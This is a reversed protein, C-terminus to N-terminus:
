VSAQKWQEKRRYMEADARKFVSDVSSDRGPLYEAMGASVVVRNEWSNEEIRQDFVRLLEERNEYDSDELIAAFEDGGIRYVPSHQFVRCILRCASIIMEDGVDHGLTDNILKLDNLDFVVIALKDLVGNAMAKDLQQVKDSYALKSKVGTLVDTYAQKWATTLQQLQEKERAISAELDRRSEEERHLSTELDRRYEERENEIVFTRLLCGGLMYGITYLPLFPYFLQISLLVVMIIGFLGITLHRSKESDRTKGACHLVYLSTFLFLLIQVILLAHRVPGAHYIGNEDFYFMVPTFLNIVTMACVVAFFLKGASSLYKRFRNRQELYAIAYQTWLLIGAAMALYYVVTDAYLLSTLSLSDLIGWLIDTIYYAMICFLFRRYIRQVPSAVSGPRQLLVDHNTIVLVMLALLGIVSYYM